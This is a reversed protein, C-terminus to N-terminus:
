PQHPNHCTICDEGEGHEAPDIQKIVDESRAPNKLHCRLCLTANNIIEMHNQEPDDVHLYGVGHCLECQLSIHNGQNKFEAISDHCMACTEKDVFKPVQDAIEILANGRYPGYERWSEPTLFYKLVFMLGIFAAFAIILRRIQIPM